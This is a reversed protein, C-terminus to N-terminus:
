DLKNLNYLRSQSFTLRSQTIFRFPPLLFSPLFLNQIAALRIPVFRKKFYFLSVRKLVPLSIRQKAYFLHLLPSITADLRFAKPTDGFTLLNLQKRKSTSRSVFCQDSSFDQKHFQVPQFVVPASNMFDM